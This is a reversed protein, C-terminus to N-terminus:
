TLLNNLARFDMLREGFWTVSHNLGSWAWQFSRWLLVYVKDKEFMQQWTHTGWKAACIMFWRHGYLDDVPFIGVTVHDPTFGEAVETRKLMWSMSGIIGASHVVSPNLRTQCFHNQLVNERLHRTGWYDWDDTARKITSWFSSPEARLCM